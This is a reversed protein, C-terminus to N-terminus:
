PRTGGASAAESLPMRIAARDDPVRLMINKRALISWVIVEIRGSYKWDPRHRARPNAARFWWALAITLLIVPVVVALMIATADLLIVREAEGIPGHPDLVGGGCSALLLLAPTLVVDRAPTRATIIRL